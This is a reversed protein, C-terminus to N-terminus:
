PARGKTRIQAKWDGNKVHFNIPDLSGSALTTSTVLSAPTALVIGGLAAVGLLAATLAFLFRTRM